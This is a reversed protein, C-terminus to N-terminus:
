GEGEEQEQLFTRLEDLDDQTITGSGSLCAVLDRVSGRYFRELFNASECALYEKQSIKPFYVNIKGQKECTLFGKQCLRSLFTLVSTPKWCSKLRETLWVSPVPLEPANWVAQMVALEADPLRKM